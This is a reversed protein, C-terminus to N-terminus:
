SAVIVPSCRIFERWISFWQIIWNGPILRLGMIKRENLAVKKEFNGMKVNVDKGCYLFDVGLCPLFFTGFVSRFFQGYMYTLSCSLLFFAFQKCCWKVRNRWTVKMMKTASRANIYGHLATAPMNQYLILRHREPFNGRPALSSKRRANKERGGGGERGREM